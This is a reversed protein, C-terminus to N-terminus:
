SRRGLLFNALLGAAFAILVSQGPKEKVRMELKALTENSTVKLDDMRNRVYDSVEHARDSSASKINHALDVVNEKINKLDQSMEKDTNAATVDKKIKQATDKVEEYISM